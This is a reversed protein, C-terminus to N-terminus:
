ENNEKAKDVITEKEAFLNALSEGNEPPVVHLQCRVIQYPGATSATIVYSMCKPLEKLAFDCLAEKIRLRVFDYHDDESLMELAENPIGIDLSVRGVQKNVITFNKYPIEEKTYAGLKYVIWKKIKKILKKM